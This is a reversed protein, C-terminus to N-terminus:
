KIIKGYIHRADQINQYIVEGNQSQENKHVAKVMAWIAAALLVLM